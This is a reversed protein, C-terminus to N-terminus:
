SKSAEVFIYHMTLTMKIFITNKNKTHAKQPYSSDVNKLDAGDQSVEVVTYQIYTHINIM